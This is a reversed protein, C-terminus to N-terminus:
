SPAPSVQQQAQESLDIEPDTETAAGLSAPAADGTECLAADETAAASSPLAHSTFELAAM